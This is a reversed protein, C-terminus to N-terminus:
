VKWESRYTRNGKHRRWPKSQQGWDSDWKRHYYAGDNQNHESAKPKGEVVVTPQVLTVPLPSQPLEDDESSDMCDAWSIKQPVNPTTPSSDTQQGVVGDSSTAKTEHEEM